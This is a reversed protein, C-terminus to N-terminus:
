IKTTNFLTVNEFDCLWTNYFNVCKNYKDGIVYVKKDLLVSFIMGHLRTTYVESYPKLFEIGERIYKERKHKGMFGYKPNVLSRLFPIRQFFSSLKNQLSLMKIYFARFIYYRSFSPWDSVDADINRTPLNILKESDTRALVLKKGNNIKNCPLDVMFAMDPLLILKEKDIYPQILQYSNNDITCIFINQHSNIIRADEILLSQNCYYVTQPFIIIRNNPFLQILKLRFLQFERYLDGFNGGGHLLIIDHPSIKSFDTNNYNASYKLKYSKIQGLFKLEGEWILNDGINNHNPIDLLVYDANILPCLKEKILNRLGIIRDKNNM